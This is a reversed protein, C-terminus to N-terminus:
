GVLWGVALCAFLWALLAGVLWGVVSCPPSRVMESVEGSHGKLIAKLRNEVARLKGRSLRVEDSASDRIDGDESVCATIAKVIQAHGQM